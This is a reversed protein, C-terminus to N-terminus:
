PFIPPPVEGKGRDALALSPIAQNSFTAVEKATGKRKNRKQGNKPSRRQKRWVIQRREVFCRCQQVNHVGKEKEETKKQGRFRRPFSNGKKQGLVACLTLERKL